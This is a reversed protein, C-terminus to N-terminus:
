PEPEQSSSFFFLEFHLPSVTVKMHRHDDYSTMYYDYSQVCTMGFISLCILHTLCLVSPIAYLTSLFGGLLLPGFISELGAFQAGEISTVGSPVASSM